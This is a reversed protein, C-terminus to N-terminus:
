LVTLVIERRGEAAPLIKVQLAGAIDVALREAWEIAKVGRGALIEDLGLAELASADVPGAPLRYLDVHFFDSIEGRYEHILTYTPSQIDRRDVGLARAVGRVLVTKGSGLGGELLLVGDPSLRPALWAGVAETDAESRSFWRRM